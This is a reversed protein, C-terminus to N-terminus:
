PPVAGALTLFCAFLQSFFSSFSFAALCYDVFPCLAPGFGSGALGIVFGIAGNNTGGDTGHSSFPYGAIALSM